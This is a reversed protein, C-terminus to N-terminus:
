SLPTPQGPIKRVCKARFILGCICFKCRTIVAVCAMYPSALSRVCSSPQWNVMGFITNESINTFYRGDGVKPKRLPSDSKSSPFRREYIMATYGISHVIAQVTSIRAVWRHFNNYVGFGWGTMWMLVNNRTGFLWILPFNALSIIGTRDSVYRWLQDHVEPWYLNGHVVRYSITCLIVNLAVFASITLFQIRTPITCWGLPESCRHGFAAPIIVHRKVITYVLSLKSYQRPPDSEDPSTSVRQWGSRRINHLLSILRSSIGVSLVIAWFYYMAWSIDNAYQLRKTM